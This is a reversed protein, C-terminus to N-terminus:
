SADENTLRILNDLRIILINCAKVVIDATIMYELVKYHSILAIKLLM